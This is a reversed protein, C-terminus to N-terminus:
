QSMEGVIQEYMKALCDASTQVSFHKILRDQGARALCYAKERNSLLDFMAAAMENPNEPAVVLGTENHLVLEPVGGVGTAVIPVGLAMAELVVMPCGEWRSSLVFLDAARLIVPMDTRFGLFRVNDAIGFRQAMEAMSEQLTGEGTIVLVPLKDKGPNERRFRDLLEVMSQLLLDFGKAFRFNGSAFIVPRQAGIGLRCRIEAKSEASQFYDVNIGNYVVTIKDAIQPQWDQLSGAVAKSVAVVRDFRSYILRDLWRLYPRRRGNTVSHETLVLYARGSFFSALAVFLIVPWGHAHIVDYRKFLKVLRFLVRPDYKHAIHLHHLVIGAEQLLEGFWGIEYLAVGEVENGPLKNLAPLFHQLSTAIGGQGFTAVVHLFIRMKGRSVFSFREIVPL